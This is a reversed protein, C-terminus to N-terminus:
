GVDQATQSFRCRGMRRFVAVEDATCFYKKYTFGPAIKKWKAKDSPLVFCLYAFNGSQSQRSPGPQPESSLEPMEVNDAGDVDEIDATAPLSFAPAENVIFHATFGDWRKYAWGLNLDIILTATQNYLLNVELAKIIGENFPQLTSTTIQPLIVLEINMLNLIQPHAPCKDVFLMISHNRCRMHSDFTHVWSMFMGSTIWAKKNFNCQCPTMHGKFACSNKSKGFMLLNLKESSGM